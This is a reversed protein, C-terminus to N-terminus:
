PRKQLEIFKAEEEALLTLLLKRKAESTSESALIRYREINQNNFCRDMGGEKVPQGRNPLSRGEQSFTDNAFFFLVTSSFEVTCPGVIPFGPGQEYGNPGARPGARGRGPGGGRPLMSSRAHVVAGALILSGRRQDIVPARQLHSWFPPAACCHPFRIVLHRCGLVFGATRAWRGTPSRRDGRCSPRIRPLISLFQVTQRICLVTNM